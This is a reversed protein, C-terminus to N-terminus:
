FIDDVPAVETIANMLVLRRYTIEKEVREKARKNIELAWAPAVLDMTVQRVQQIYNLSRAGPKPQREKRAAGAARAAIRKQLHAPEPRSRTLDAIRHKLRSVKISTPLDTATVENFERQAAELSLGDIREIEDDDDADDDDEEDAVAAASSRTEQLEPRQRREPHEWYSREILSTDGNVAARIMEHFEIPCGFPILIPPLDSFGRAAKTDVTGDARVVCVRREVLAPDFTM